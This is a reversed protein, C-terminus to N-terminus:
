ADEFAILLQGNVFGPWPAVSSDSCAVLSLTFPSGAGAADKFTFKRGVKIRRSVMTCAPLYGTTDRGPTNLSIVEDYLTKVLGGVSRRDLINQVTFNAPSWITGLINEILSLRVVNRADDAVTNAQGGVLQGVVEVYRVFIEDGIRNVKDTGQPILVCCDTSVVSTKIQTFSTTLPVYSYKMEHLGRPEPIISLGRSSSADGGLKEQNSQPAASPRARSKGGTRNRMSRQANKRNKTM